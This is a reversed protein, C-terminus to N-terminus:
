SEIHYIKSIIRWRGDTKVFNLLDVFQTPPVAVNVKAVASAPGSFDISILEGSFSDGKSAPSDRRGVLEIYEAIPMVKLEDSISAYLHAEPLFVERLKSTDGEHLAVMYTQAAESLGAMDNPM